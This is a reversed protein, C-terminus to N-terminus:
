SPSNLAASQVAHAPKLKAMDSIRTQTETFLNDRKAKLSPTDRAGLIVMVYSRVGDSMVVVSDHGGVNIGGKAMVVKGMTGESCDLVDKEINKLTRGAFELTAPHLIAPFGGSYTKYLSGALLAMDHATSINQRPKYPPLIDQGTANIFSSSVMGLRQAETNMMDPFRRGKGAIAEGVATAADNASITMMAMALTRLDVKSGAKLGLRSGIMSAATKSITVPTALGQPFVRDAAPKEADETLTKCMLYVTMLKTLSAPRRQADPQSSLIESPNAQHDTADVVIFTPPTPAPELVPMRYRKGHALAGDPSIALLM